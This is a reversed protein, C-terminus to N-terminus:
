YKKKEEIIKIFYILEKIFKKNDFNNILYKINKNLIENGLVIIKFIDKNINLTHELDALKYGYNYIALMILIFDFYILKDLFIKCKQNKCIYNVDLLEYIDGPQPFFFEIISIRPYTSIDVNIDEVSPKNKFKHKFDM